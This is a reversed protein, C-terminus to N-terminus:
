RPHDGLAQAVGAASEVLEIAGASRRRGLPTEEELPEDVVEPLALMSRPIEIPAAGGCGERPAGIALRLVDAEGEIWAM